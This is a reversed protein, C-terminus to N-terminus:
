RHRRMFNLTMCAVVLLTWAFLVRWSFSLLQFGRGFNLATLIRMGAATPLYGFVYSGSVFELPTIAGSVIWMTFSVLMSPVPVLSFAGVRMGYSVGVVSFMFSLCLFVAFFLFLAEPSIFEVGYAFRNLLLMLSVISVSIAMTAFVKGLRAYIEGFPAMKVEPLTGREKEESGLAGGFFLGLFSALFVLMGMQMYDIRRLETDHVPSLKYDFGPCELLCQTSYFQYFRGEIGLRLNKNLDGHINNILVPVHVYKGEELAKNFGEPVWLVAFVGRNNFLSMADGEDLSLVNFHPITGSRDGLCRLLAETHAGGSKDLDVVALPFAAGGGLNFAQTFFFTLIIPLLM